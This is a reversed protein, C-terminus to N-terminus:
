ASLAQDNEAVIPAPGLARRGPGALMLAAGVTFIGASTALAFRMGLADSLSTLLLAAIPMLGFFALGAIASVRGRLHGPAREQVITNALGMMVSCSVSLCVLVGCGEILNQAQSMGLLAGATGMAGLALVALRQPRPIRLLLTSGTLSGIASSSMLIGMGAPPLKLIDIAYLPMLVLMAPFVFFTTLSILGIMAMTPKDARVYAFGAKMGAGRQEEEEATGLPRAPLTALAICLPVFTFANAFFASAGGWLGIAFGAASPGILRTSHFVARDIAISAGIQEKAVIEPVLASAAPMEFANSIGQLAAIIMIHEIRVLHKLVLYGMVCALIIQIFQCILLIKRKDFADAVSGGKLALLIMPLGGALNVLGLMLASHTITAMVWGQAMTQMWTGTMSFAEASMYRMFPGSRFISPTPGTTELMQEPL